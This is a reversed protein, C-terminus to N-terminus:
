EKASWPYLHWIQTSADGYIEVGRATVAKCLGRIAEAESKRAGNYVLEADLMLNGGVTDVQHIGDGKIFPHYPPGWQRFPRGKWSWGWTDYFFNGRSGSDVMPYAAIARKGHAWLRTATNPQWRYDSDVFWVVDAWHDEAIADLGVNACRALERLRIPNQTSGFNRYGHNYTIVRVMGTKVWANLKLPTEDKSDGEVAYVFVEGDWELDAVQRIYNDLYWMSNRFLSLIALNLM